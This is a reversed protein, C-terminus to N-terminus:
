KRVTDMDSGGSHVISQRQPWRTGSLFGVELGLVAHAPKQLFLSGKPIHRMSDVSSHHVSQPHGPAAKSGEEWRPGVAEEPSCTAQGLPLLLLLCLSLFNSGTGPSTGSLLIICSPATSIPAVSLLWRPFCLVWSGSSPPAACYGTHDVRDMWWLSLFAAGYPGGEAPKKLLDAGIM